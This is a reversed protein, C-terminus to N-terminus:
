FLVCRPAVHGQPGILTEVAFRELFQVRVSSKTQLRQACGLKRTTHSYPTKLLGDEHVRDASCFSYDTGCTCATLTTPVAHANELCDLDASEHVPAAESILDQQPQYVVTTSYIVGAQRPKWHAAVMKVQRFTRATVDLTRILASGLLSFGLACSLFIIYMM